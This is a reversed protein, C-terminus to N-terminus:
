NVGEGTDEVMGDSFVDTRPQSLKEETDKNMRRQCIRRANDKANTLNFIEPTPEDRWEFKIHYHNEYIESPVLYAVTRNEFRLDHRDWYFEDWGHMTM